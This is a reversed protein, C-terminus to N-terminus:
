NNTRKRRPRVRTEPRRILTASAIEKDETNILKDPCAVIDTTPLWLQTDIADVDDIRWVSGDELIVITGDDSVTEIWHGAECARADPSAIALVITVAVLTPLKGM